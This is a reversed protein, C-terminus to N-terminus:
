LATLPEVLPEVLIRREPARIEFNLQGLFNMGILGDIDAGAFDLIQVCAGRMSVGLADLKAIKVLYGYEYGVATQVRTRVLGDRASYGLEDLLEPSITTCSAGTDVVLRGAVTGRPGVCRGEIIM